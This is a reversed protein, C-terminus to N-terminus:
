KSKNLGYIKYGTKTLLGESEKTLLNNQKKNSLFILTIGLIFLLAGILIRPKQGNGAVNGTISSNLISLASSIIVLLLGFARKKNM